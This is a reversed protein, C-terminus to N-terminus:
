TRAMHLHVPVVWLGPILCKGTAELVKTGDRVRAKDGPGVWSIGDAPIRATRDPLLAGQAVDIVDVHVIALDPNQPAAHSGAPAALLLHIPNMVM